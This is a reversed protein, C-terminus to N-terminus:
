EGSKGARECQHDKSGTRSKSPACRFINGGAYGCAVSVFVKKCPTEEMCTDWCYPLCCSYMCGGWISANSQDGTAVTEKSVNKGSGQQNEKTEDSGQQGGTGAAQNDASTFTTKLTISEGAGIEEVTLFAQNEPALKYGEPVFNEMSVNSFTQESTNTVTLTVGIDEDEEYESQDAKLEVRLGDQQSEAALASSSFIGVCFAIAIFFTLIKKMRKM